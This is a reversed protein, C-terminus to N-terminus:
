GKKWMKGIIIDTSICGIIRSDTSNNRNDGMVFVCGEPVVIEEDPYKTITQELIYNEEVAEGNRYFKGDKFSVTDGPVAVVRKIWYTDTKVHDKGMMWQSIRNNRLVEGLMHFYGMEKNHMSFDFVVIDGVEPEGFIYPLLTTFVREGGHLTPEMSEGVVTNQRSAFITFNAVLFVASVIIALFLMFEKFIKKFINKAKRKKRYTDVDDNFVDDYDMDDDSFDAPAHDVFDESEEGPEVVHWIPQIEPEDEPRIETIQSLGTVISKDPLTTVKPPTDIYHSEVGLFHETEYTPQTESVAARQRAREWTTVSVPTKPIAVLECDDEEQFLTAPEDADEAEEMAEIEEAEEIEEIEEKCVISEFICPTESPAEESLTAEVDDIETEKCFECFGADDEEATDDEFVEATIEEQADEEEFLVTPASEETEQIETEEFELDGFVDAFDIDEDEDEDEELFMETESEEVATEQTAEELAPAEEPTTDEAEEAEEVPFATEEFEFEEFVGAFDEDDEDEDLPMETEAEEVATEQMAEELAPAEEPTTEEAEETEEVPLATEEFEFEEFVDSFDEEDDEEDAECAEYDASDEIELGEAVLEEPFDEELSFDAEEDEELIETEITEEADEESSFEELVIDEEIASDAEDPLATEEFELDGYEDSIEITEEVATAQEEEYVLAEMERGFLTGDKDFSFDGPFPKHAKTQDRVTDIRDFQLEFDQM